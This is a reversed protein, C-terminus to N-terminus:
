FCRELFRRYVPGKRCTLFSVLADEIRNTNLNNPTTRQRGLRGRKPCLGGASTRAAPVAAAPQRVRRCLGCTSRVRSRGQAAPLRHEPRDRTRETACSVSGRAELGRLFAALNEPTPSTATIRLRFIPSMQLEQAHFLGGFCGPVPRKPLGSSCVHRRFRVEALIALNRDNEQWVQLDTNAHSAARFLLAGFALRHRPRRALLGNCCLWQGWPRIIPWM